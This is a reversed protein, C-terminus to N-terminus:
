PLHDECLATGELVTISDEADDLDEVEILCRACLLAPVDDRAEDKLAEILRDAETPTLPDRRGMLTRHINWEVITRYHATM